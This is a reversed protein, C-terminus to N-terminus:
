DPVIQIRFFKDVFTAFLASSHFKNQVKALIHGNIFDFM